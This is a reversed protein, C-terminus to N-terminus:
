GSGRIREHREDRIAQARLATFIRVGALAVARVSPDDNASMAEYSSVITQYWSSLTGSWGGLQRLAAIREPDVGRPVLLGALAEIPPATDISNGSYFGLVEDPSVEGASLLEDLWDTDSGGIHSDVLWRTVPQHKFQRRLQMKSSSPLLHIVDWCEYPLSTYANTEGASSLSRSIISTLTDPYHSALYKFLEAMEYGPCGPIAAPRLKDLAALWGQELKGPAWDERPLHGTFTAVAMVARIEADPHTLLETQRASSIQGRLTLVEVLRYDGINLFERALDASWDPPPETRLLLELIEWRSAPSALLDRAADESLAGDRSLRDAFRSGEPMFKQNISVQLWEEPNNVIEALRATAIMVRNPWSREAYALEAKIESLRGVMAAPDEDAWGDVVAWINDILSRETDLWNAGSTEIDTFFVEFEPPLEVSVAVDFRAVASRLRSRNGSSLDQRLALAETLKEGIARAARLRDQPHDQGFPRDYGGGIRLWAAAADIAAAALEPRGTDLMDEFVPWTETLIQDIEEAPVITDILNMEHPRGPDLLSSRIGLDLTMRIVAATVRRRAPDDPAQNLWRATRTAAKPRLGPQRPIEPHFDRLLGEIQRLPHGPYANEPRPDVLCADLLLDIASDAQYFRAVQAALSVAPELDRAGASTAVANDFTERALRLVHDGARRDLRIFEQCMGTKMDASVAASGLADEFMNEALQRANSAGLYASRIVAHALDGARDPWRTTLGDLDIAPVPVTFAREAVLADGLMPPRVTYTHIHGPYGSRVDILGSRAAATLVTAVDARSLNLEAGLKGLEPDAVGGLASLVALVDIAAPVLGARRLYRAAEGLLAKGNLLSHPDNQRLLLDALTVAWAPRGEAQDLIESRALRSTIGMAQILGDLPEREMLDLAHVRASPILARLNEADPPWCTAILRYSFLDPETRRLWLLRSILVQAGAADDIVVTPPLAWRLDDAVRDPPADKDVFATDPLESILRSKGVGPPASLIIDDTGAVAELEGDRAALPLFAWPSEALDPAVPALTVPGSPLGLLKARWHGDRRLRSAFFGRDFVDSAKLEAGTKKASQVLKQRDTLSLQAPNALVIRRFRVKHEKMSAIGALMNKRVGELSRSSTVLLRM